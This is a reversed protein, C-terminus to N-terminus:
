LAKCQLPTNLRSDKVGGDNSCAPSDSSENSSEAKSSAKAALSSELHQLHAERLAASIELTRETMAQRELCLGCIHVGAQLPGELNPEDLRYSLPNLACSSTPELDASGSM